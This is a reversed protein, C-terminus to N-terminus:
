PEDPDEVPLGREKRKRIIIDDITEVGTPGKGGGIFQLISPQEGKFGYCKLIKEIAKDRINVDPDELQEDLKVMAKRYLGALIRDGESFINEIIRNVEAWVQANENLIRYVTTETLNVKSAIIEIPYGRAAHEAILRYRLSLKGKKPEEKKEPPKVIVPFKKDEPPKKDENIVEAETYEEEM